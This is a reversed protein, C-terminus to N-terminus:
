KPQLRNALALVRKTGEASFEGQEARKRLTEALNRTVAASMSKVNDRMKEAAEAIKKQEATASAPAQASASQELLKNSGILIQVSDEMGDLYENEYKKPNAKFAADYRDIVPKIAQILNPLSKDPSRAVAKFYYELQPVFKTPTLVSELLEGSKGDGYAITAKPNRLQQSQLLYIDAVFEYYADAAHVHATAMCAAIFFLARKLLKM